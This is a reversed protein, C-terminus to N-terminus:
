FCTSKRRQAPSGQTQQKSANKADKNEGHHQDSTEGEDTQSSRERTRKRGKDTAEKRKPLEDPTKFPYFCLIIKVVASAAFTFYLCMKPTVATKRAEIWDVM